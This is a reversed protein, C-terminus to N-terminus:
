DDIEGMAPEYAPLYIAFTSGHGPKSSVDIAGGNQTVIGYVTALGLGTGKGIDKTTFFPEFLHTVTEETMGCGDDSVTLRVYWGPSTGTHAECRAEDFWVMGTEVTMTGAGAIADRANVALNALVQDIQVSDMKVPRLNGAPKWKLLINEGILRELMRLVSTIADELDLVRPSIAQKRAFALLQRTLDASREGASMIEQLNERIPSSPDLKMLAMEAHGIIVSLMNNFDHAVGGALRGVADMKQAQRLQAQLEDRESERESVAMAFSIDMAMEDLLATEEDDFFGPEGACLSLVGRTQGNVILPLIITARYGLQLARDRWPVTGLDHEVDNCIVHTGSIVASRTPGSAPLDSTLADALQELYGGKSGKHAVL